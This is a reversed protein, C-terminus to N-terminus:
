GLDQIRSLRQWNKVEEVVMQLDMAQKGGEEAVPAEEAGPTPPPEVVHKGHGAVHM